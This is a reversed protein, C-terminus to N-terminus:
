LGVTGKQKPSVKSVGLAYIRRRQISRGRPITCFLIRFGTKYREKGFLPRRNFKCPYFFNHEAAVADIHYSGIAM